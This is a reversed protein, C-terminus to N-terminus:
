VAVAGRREADSIVCEPADLESYEAEIVVAQEGDPPGIQKPEAPRSLAQAIGGTLATMLEHQAENHSRKTLEAAAKLMHDTTVGPDEGRLIKRRLRQMGVDWVARLGGDVTADAADLIALMEDRTDDVQVAVETGRTEDVVECHKRWHNKVNDENPNEVGWEELKALVVSLPYALQGDPGRTRAARLELLHDIEARQPHRCLKCKPESKTAVVM